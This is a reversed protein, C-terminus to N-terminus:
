APDDAEDRYPFGAPVAGDAGFRWVTRETIAVEGRAMADMIEAALAALFREAWIRMAGGPDKLYGTGYVTAAIGEAQARAFGIAIGALREPELAPEIAPAAAALVPYLLHRRDELDASAQLQDAVKRLYAARDPPLGRFAADLIARHDM